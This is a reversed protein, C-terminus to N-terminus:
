VPVSELFQMSTAMIVPIFEQGSAQNNYISAM